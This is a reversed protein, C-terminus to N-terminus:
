TPQSPVGRAHSWMRTATSSRPGFPAAASPNRPGSSTTASEPSAVPRRKWGSPRWPLTCSKTTRMGVAGGARQRANASTYETSHAPRGAREDRQDRKEVPFGGARLQLVVHRRRESAENSVVRPARRPDVATPREREGVSFGDRVVVAAGLREVFLQLVRVDFVGERDRIALARDAGDGDLVVVGAADAEVGDEGGGVAGALARHVDNADRQEALRQADVALDSGDERAEVRSQAPQDRAVRRERRKQLLEAAGEIPAVDGAGVARARM